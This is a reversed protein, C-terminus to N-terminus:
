HVTPTFPAAPQFLEAWAEEAEAMEEATVPRDIENGLHRLVGALLQYVCHQCLDAVLRDGDVFRTANYGSRVEIRVFEQMELEECLSRHARWDHRCRDCRKGIIRFGMGEVARVIDM